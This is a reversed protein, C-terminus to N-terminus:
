KFHKTIFYYFVVQLVLFLFVIAYMRNWYKRESKQM